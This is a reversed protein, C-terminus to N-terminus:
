HTDLPVMRAGPLTSLGINSGLRIRTSRISCSIQHNSAM